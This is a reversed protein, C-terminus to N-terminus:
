LIPIEGVEVLIGADIMKRVCDDCIPNEAVTPHDKVFEFDIMDAVTSGYGGTLKWRCNGDDRHDLYTWACCRYGQTWPGTRNRSLMIDDPTGGEFRAHCRVCIVVIETAEYTEAFIAPKCPYREGAVGTIIWDGPLVQMEGELTRVLAIPAGAHPGDVHLLPCVMVGEVDRGPFWQEAEVVIPRKRFKSM